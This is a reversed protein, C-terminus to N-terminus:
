QVAITPRTRYRLTVVSLWAFTLITAVFLRIGAGNYSPWMALAPAALGTLASYGALGWTKRKAFRVASVLCAATVCLFAVMTSINHAIAHWSWHDPLGAPAGAPFGLAPDVVFVGAAFLGVGFGGVLTPQWFSPAVQRLGAAAALCLLGAVIFNSIQIWGFEGLSLSSIALKSLDFGDRTMVQISAVVIFLPGAIIGCNLLTRQNMM